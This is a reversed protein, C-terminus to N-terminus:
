FIDVLSGNTFRNNNELTEIGDYNMGNRPTRSDSKLTM